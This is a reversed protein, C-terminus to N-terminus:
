LSGQSPTFCAAGWPPNRKVSPFAQMTTKKSRPMKQPRTHIYLDRSVNPHRNTSARAISTPYQRAHIWFIHHISRMLYFRYIEVLHSGVIAEYGALAENKCGWGETQVSRVSSFLAPSGMSWQISTIIWSAASKSAHSIWTCSCQCVGSVSTHTMLFWPCIDPSIWRSFHLLLLIRYIQWQYRDAGKCGEFSIFRPSPCRLRHLFGLITSGHTFFTDTITFFTVTHRYVTCPSIITYLQHYTPYLWFNPFPIKASFPRTKTM